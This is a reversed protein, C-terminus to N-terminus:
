ASMFRDRKSDGDSFDNTLEESFIQEENEKRKIEEIDEYLKLRNEESERLTSSALNEFTMLRPRKIADLSIKESTLFDSLIKLYSIQNCKDKEEKDELSSEKIKKHSFQCRVGYSCYGLEFFQKCQKTKYNSSMKRTNLEEEGHAFACNEGYKCSGYMEWYHCIETKWKMKFDTAEGSRKHHRIKGKEKRNNNPMAFCKLGSYEDEEIEHSPENKEKESYLIRKKPVYEKISEIDDLNPKIKTQEPYSENIKSNTKYKINQHKKPSINEKDSM